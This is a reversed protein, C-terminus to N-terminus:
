RKACLVLRRQLVSHKAKIPLYILGNCQIARSLVSHKAKIAGHAISRVIVSEFLLGSPFPYCPLDICWQLPMIPESIALHDAIHISPWRDDKDWQM